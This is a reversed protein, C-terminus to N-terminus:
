PTDFPITDQITPCRPLSLLFQRGYPKTLVRPDLIAVLGRDTHSRILRGFGQKFRIVAEPVQYDFFRNGGSRQIAEIRAEVLPHDPVQFPLRAIIVNSLAAGPIDVGQWFRDAGFIVSNVDQKFAEIMKSPALGASQALLRIKRAAFWPELVRAAEALHRHSTFLVLAKGETMDLYYPMAEIARREFETPAASPDPLNVAIHIKVQNEYDYPSGLHLTQVRGLGLRSRFFTFSPPAGVALTASTLVCTPIRDFLEERLTPGVDLPASTLTVRRRAGSEIEVWYVADAVQQTLWDQLVGATAECRDAAAFLEIQEENDQVGEAGRRIATSLKLLTEALEGSLGIPAYARGNSRPQRGHWQAVSDFFREAELRAQSVLRQAAALRHYVVLGKSTRENFLRALFVILSGSGIRAGLHAAAVEELRHAEDFIVVDHDPIVGGGGARRVALDTMYLAHNVVLLNAKWARRSAAYYFCQRFTACNKGLCNGHDSEIAEWVAPAPAFDLDSRSGNPTERSWQRIRELEVFEAPRDFLIGSRQHAVKLRRLSLYQARGKVLAASFEFPLVSRLFPIDKSYLQEQLNITHTSVVVKKGLEAAAQIAPVLYAFSKGVGTGAEVMLHGGSEISKAVAETMSLQQPRAEFERLARAIAGDPGLIALPDLKPM